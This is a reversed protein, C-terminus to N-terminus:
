GKDMNGFYFATITLWSGIVNGFVMMAIPDDHLPQQMVISHGLLGLIVAFSFLVSAGTWPRMRDRPANRRADALDSNIIRLRENAIEATRMKIEALLEPNADIAREAESPSVNGTVKRVIEIVEGLGEATSTLVGIGPIPLKSVLNGWNM